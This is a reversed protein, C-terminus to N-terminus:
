ARVEPAIEWVVLSGIGGGRDGRDIFGSRILNAVIMETDETDLIGINIDLIPKALLGPVSTSGVHEIRALPLGIANAIRQIEEVARAMWGPEHPHLVVTHRQLGLM